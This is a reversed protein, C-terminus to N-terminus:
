ENLLWLVSVMIHGINPSGLYVAFVVARARLLKHELSLTLLCKKYLSLYYINEAKRAILYTVVLHSKQQLPLAAMFLVYVFSDPWTGTSSGQSCQVNFKM